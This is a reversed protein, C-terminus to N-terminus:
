RAAPLVFPPMTLSELQSTDLEKTSGSDLFSMELKDLLRGGVGHAGPVVVHLSRPLHSAAEAGWKSSTTPDQSGSILLAPVDVSVPEAFSSPVPEHPWFKAIAMQRAIRGRGMFTGACAEGIESSAIRSLDESAVVSMLMGFAIIRRIGRSNTLGAEAIERYDGAHARMVLLPLRRNTPVTYMLVRVSEAFADRDFEIDVDEGSVPHRVTVQAPRAELRELIAQFKERLGPFANRYTESSEVEDLIQEWVVQASEAHPLPNRYSIPQVAQLTATRITEPHRRMYVLASRSGYSGGRLNIREYGLAERVENFDDVANQTTYKTLDAISSLRPLEARFIEPRFIPEFYSQLDEDNGTQSVDLRNSHGTGRQDILVIDRQERFWANINRMAMTSAAAGPGGHLIFVPDPARRDGTAPLIVLRFDIMTGKATDRDEYVSFTGVLIPTGSEEHTAQSLTLREDHKARDLLEQIADGDLDQANILQAPGLLLLIGVVVFCVAFPFSALRPTM